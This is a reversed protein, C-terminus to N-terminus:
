PYLSMLACPNLPMLSTWDYAPSLQDLTECPATSPCLPMFACPSQRTMVHALPLQDLLGNPPACQVWPYHADPAPTSSNSQALSTILGHCAQLGFPISCKRYPPTYRARCRRPNPPTIDCLLIPACVGLDCVRMGCACCAGNKIGGHVQVRQVWVGQGTGERCRVGSGQVGVGAGAERGAGLAARAWRGKVGGRQGERGRRAGLAWEREERCM